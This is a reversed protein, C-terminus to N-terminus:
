DRGGAQEPAMEKQLSPRLKKRLKTYVKLARSLLFNLFPKTVLTLEGLFETFDGNFGKKFRYLGYVPKSEDLDGSVGRFDYIRCGLQAAWQIMRWQVLYNPMADRHQSSSAGYAYWVKDGFHVALTGAVPVGEYYAMFFRVHDGMVDMMTEFYSLPRIAFGDRDGTEKMLAYFAPLQAKTETKVEVGRRQAVRINYRTKSHFSALLEEESRGNLHLRFVFRAQIGEFNNNSNDIVFGQRRVIGEFVNDSISIDPDMKIVYSRYQKALRKADAILKGFVAEDHLDCVPGRPSYMMTVGVGTIRRILVSMVGTIQGNDDREIIGEWKWQKKVNGWEPAQLWHGKPHNWVFDNYEQLTAASCLEM